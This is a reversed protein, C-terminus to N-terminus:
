CNLRVREGNLNVDDNARVDVNGRRAELSIEGGAHQVIDGTTRVDFSECRVKLSGQCDLEVQAARFRLVPGAPTLEVELLVEGGPGLITVEDRSEEKSRCVVSRGSALALERSQGNESNM